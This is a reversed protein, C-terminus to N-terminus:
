VLVHSFRLPNFLSASAGLFTFGLPILSRLPSPLLRTTPSTSPRTSGTHKWIPLRCTSFTPRYNSRATNRVGFRASKPSRRETTTPLLGKPTAWIAGTREAMPRTENTPPFRMSIRPHTRRLFNCPGPSEYWTFTLSPLALPTTTRTSCASLSWTSFPRANRSGPTAGISSAEVKSSGNETTLLNEEQRWQEGLASTQCASYINSPIYFIWIKPVFRPFRM